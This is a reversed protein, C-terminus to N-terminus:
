HRRRRRAYGREPPAPPTPVGSQSIVRELLGLLQEQDAPSLTAFLREQARRMEEDFGEILRSGEATVALLKVRSDDPSPTRTIYGRDELGQLLSTVSAATTGSMEALERAIVGRDQHEEIYGLTFAQQRTLGSARVWEDADARQTFGLARIAITLREARSTM